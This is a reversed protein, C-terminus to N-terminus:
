LIKFMLLKYRLQSENLKFSIFKLFLFNKSISFFFKKKINHWFKEIGHGNYSFFKTFQYHYLHKSNIEWFYLQPCNLINLTNIFQNICYRERGITDAM